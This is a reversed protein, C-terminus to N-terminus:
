ADTDPTTNTHETPPSVEPLLDVVFTPWLTPTPVRRPGSWPAPTADVERAMAYVAYEYRSRSIRFQEWAEDLPTDIPFDARRLLDVAADFEERTITVPHDEGQQLALIAETDLDHAADLNAAMETALMQRSWSPLERARAQSERSGGLFNGSFPMHVRWGLRRFLFVYIVELAQGGQLLVAYADHRPMSRNLALQLSAADMVALLATLYHRTGRASRVWVLVPYTVHTMRLRASWGAWQALLTSVAPLNGAVAHRCLLEPGWAPEGGMASLMTVEVERDLYASYITPLFGILLAIVIPGTAAAFFDIITQDERNGSAFGLTLLSSGAQRMSDGMSQGSLGYLLLGYAVLYLALWTILQLIIVTPGAAAMVSDRGAYTRRLRAVGLATGVVAKSVLDSITSRLARPIVVTRMLSITTAIVLALGVLSAASRSLIDTMLQSVRSHDWV